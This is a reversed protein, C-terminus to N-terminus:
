VVPVFSKALADAWDARVAFDERSPAGAGAGRRGEASAVPRVGHVVVGIIHVLMDPIPQGYAIREPRGLMAMSENFSRAYGRGENSDLLAATIAMKEAIIEAEIAKKDEYGGARAGAGGNAMADLEAQRKVIKAAAGGILLLGAPILMLYSTVLTTGLVIMAVQLTGQVAPNTLADATNKCCASRYLRAVWSRRVPAPVAAVAETTATIIDGLNMTSGQRALQLAGM